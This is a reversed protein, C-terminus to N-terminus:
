STSGGCLSEHTSLVILHHLQDHCATAMSATAQESPSTADRGTWSLRTNCYHLQMDRLDLEKEM